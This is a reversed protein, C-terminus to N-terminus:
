KRSLKLLVECPPSQHEHGTVQRYQDQLSNRYGILNADFRDM